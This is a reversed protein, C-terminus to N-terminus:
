QRQKQYLTITYVCILSYLIHYIVIIYYKDVFILMNFSRLTCFMIRRERNVKRYMLIIIRYIKTKKREDKSMEVVSAIFIM